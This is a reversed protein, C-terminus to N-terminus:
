DQKNVRKFVFLKSLIYNLVLVVIQGMVKAVVENTSFISVAFLIVATEAVLSFVRAGTFSLLERAATRLKWSKSEFVFLKNTIFAFAVAFVWSIINAAFLRLSESLNPVYQLWHYRDMLGQLGSSTGAFLGLKDFLLLGGTYSGISVVTTLVGFFLYAIVERSFVRGLVKNDCLKRYLKNNELM